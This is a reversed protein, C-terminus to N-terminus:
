DGVEKIAEEVARLEEENEIKVLSYDDGNQELISVYAKVNDADIETNMTYLIYDKDDYGVVNFIDLVEVEYQNGDVDTITIINDEM